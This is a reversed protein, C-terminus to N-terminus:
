GGVDYGLAEFDRAYRKAVIRRSPEDFYDAAERRDSRNIHPLWSEAGISDAILQWDEKLSELRLLHSVAIAGSDDCLWEVQPEHVWHGRKTDIPFFAEQPSPLGGHIWCRFLDIESFTKWDEIEVVQEDEVIEGLAAEIAEPSPRPIEFGEARMWSWCSILRDYPNRVSAFTILSDWRERKKLRQIQDRADSFDVRNAASGLNKGLAWRLTRSACKPIQIFIYDRSVPPEPLYSPAESM